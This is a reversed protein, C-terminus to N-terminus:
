KELTKMRNAINDFERKVFLWPLSYHLGQNHRLARSDFGDM